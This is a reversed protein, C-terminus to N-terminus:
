AEKMWAAYNAWMGEIHEPIHREYYELLDVLTMTGREPHEVAHSWAENPLALFLRYTRGRLWNILELADEINQEQYHLKGAWLDGDYATVSSGPEAICKCIRVYGNIEADLIHIVIEHISWQDPAPKFQWMEQPFQGLAGILDAYADGYSQLKQYRENKMREELPIEAPLREEATM